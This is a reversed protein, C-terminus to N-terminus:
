ENPHTGGENKTSAPLVSLPDASVSSSPRLYLYKRALHTLLEVDMLDFSDAVEEKTAPRRGREEEEVVLFLSALTMVAEGRQLEDRDVRDLIEVIADLSRLKPSRPFFRKGERVIPEGDEGAMEALTPLLAEAEREAREQRPLFDRLTNQRRQM